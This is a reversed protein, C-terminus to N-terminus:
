MLAFIYVYIKWDSLRIYVLFYHFALPIIFTPTTKWKDMSGWGIGPIEEYATYNDRQSGGYQIVDYAVRKSPKSQHTISKKNDM